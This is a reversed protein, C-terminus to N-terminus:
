DEQDKHQQELPTPRDGEPVPIARYIHASLVERARVAAELTQLCSPEVAHRVKLLPLIVANFTRAKRIRSHCNSM